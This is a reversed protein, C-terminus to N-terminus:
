LIQAVLIPLLLHNHLHLATFCTVIHFDRVHRVTFCTILVCELVAVATGLLMYLNELESKDTPGNGDVKPHSLWSWFAQTVKQEKRPM